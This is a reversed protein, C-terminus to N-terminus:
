SGLPATRGVHGWAEEAPGQSLGM